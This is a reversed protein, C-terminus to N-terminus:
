LPYFHAMQPLMFEFTLFLFNLIYIKLSLIMEPSLKQRSEM